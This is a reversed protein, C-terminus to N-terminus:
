RTIDGGEQVKNVAFQVLCCWHAYGSTGRCACDRTLSQTSGNPFSSPLVGDEEHCIWCLTGEPIENDEAKRQFSLKGDM